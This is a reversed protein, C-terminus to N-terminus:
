HRYGILIGTIVHYTTLCHQSLSNDKENNVDGVINRREINVGDEDAGDGEEREGGEEEEVREGEGWGRVDLYRVDPEKSGM